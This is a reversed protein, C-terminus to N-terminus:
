TRRRHATCVLFLPGRVIKGMIYMPAGGVYRGHITYKMSDIAAAREDTERKVVVGLAVCREIDELAYEGSEYRERAHNTFEYEGRAVLWQILEFGGSPQRM